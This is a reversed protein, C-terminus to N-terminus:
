HDKWMTGAQWHIHATGAECVKPATREHVSTHHKYERKPCEWYNTGANTWIRAFGRSLSPFWRRANTCTPTEQHKCTEKLPHRSQARWVWHRDSNRMGYGARGAGVARGRQQRSKSSTAICGVRKARLAPADAAGACRARSTLALACLFTTAEHIVLGKAAAAKMGRSYMPVSAFPGAM